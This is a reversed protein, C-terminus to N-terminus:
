AANRSRKRKAKAQRLNNLMISSVEEIVQDYEGADIRTIIAEWLADRDVNPDIVAAAQGDFIPLANSGYLVRVVPAKQEIDYMELRAAGKEGTRHREINRIVTARKEQITKPQDKGATSHFGETPRIIGPIENKKTM